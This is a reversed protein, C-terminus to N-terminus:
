NEGKPVFVAYRAHRKKTQIDDYITYLYIRTPIGAGKTDVIYRIIDIINYVSDPIQKSTAQIVHEGDDNTNFMGAQTFDGKDNVLMYPQSMLRVSRPNSYGYLKDVFLQLDDGSISLGAFKRPYPTSRGAFVNSDGELKIVKDIGNENFNFKTKQRQKFKEREAKVEPTIDRAPKNLEEKFAKFDEPPMYMTQAKIETLHGSRIYSEVVSTTSNSEKKIGEYFYFVSNGHILIRSTFWPSILLDESDNHTPFSLMIEKNIKFQRM